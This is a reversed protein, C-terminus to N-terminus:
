REVMRVRPQTAIPENTTLSAVLAEDRESRLRSAIALACRCRVAVIRIDAYSPPSFM